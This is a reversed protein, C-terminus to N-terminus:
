LLEVNCKAFTLLYFICPVIGIESERYILTLLFDKFWHPQGQDAVPDPLPVHEADGRGEHLQLHELICQETIAAM